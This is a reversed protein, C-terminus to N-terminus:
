FLSVAIPLLHGDGDARSFSLFFSLFGADAKHQASWEPGAGNIAAAQAGGDVVQDDRTHVNCNMSPHMRGNRGLAMHVGMVWKEDIMGRKENSM